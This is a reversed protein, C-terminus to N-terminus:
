IQQLSKETVVLTLEAGLQQYTTYLNHIIYVDPVCVYAKRAHRQQQETVLGAGISGPFTSHDM